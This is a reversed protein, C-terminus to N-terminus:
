ADGTGDLLRRLRTADVRLQLSKTHHPVVSGPPSGKPKRVHKALTYIVDAKDAGRAKSFHVAITGADLLTELSATKGKPLKVVM